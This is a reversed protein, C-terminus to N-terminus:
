KIRIIYFMELFPPKNDEKLLAHRHGGGKGHSEFEILTSGKDIIDSKRSVNSTGAGNVPAHTIIYKAGANGKENFFADGVTPHTHGPDKFKHDHSPVENETLTFMETHRDPWENVGGSKNADKVDIVSDPAGKIFRDRLDPTRFRSLKSDPDTIMASDCIKYNPPIESKDGWFAIVGGVPVQDIVTRRSAEGARQVAAIMEDRKKELATGSKLVNVEANLNGLWFAFAILSLVITVIVSIDIKRQSNM